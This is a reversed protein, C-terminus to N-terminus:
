SGSKDKSSAYQERMYSRAHKLFFDNIGFYTAYALYRGEESPHAETKYVRTALCGNPAQEFIGKRLFFFSGEKFPTSTNITAGFEGLQALHVPKALHVKLNPEIWGLNSFTYMSHKNKLAEALVVAMSKQDTPKLIFAIVNKSKLWAEDLRDEKEAMLIIKLDEPKEIAGSSKAHELLGTLWAEFNESVFQTDIILASLSDMKKIAPMQEILKNSDITHFELGLGEPESSFHVEFGIWNNEIDKAFLIKKTNGSTLHTAADKFLVENQKLSFISWWESQGAIFLHEMSHGCFKLDDKPEPSIKMLTKKEPDCVIKLGGAPLHSPESPNPAFAGSDEKSLGMEYFLAFSQFHSIAVRDIKRELFDKLNKSHNQDFDVLAVSQLKKDEETLFMDDINLAFKAADEDKLGQYHSNSSLWQRIISVEKKRVGFFFFYVLYEGPHDPHPECRFAKGFFRIMTKTAPPILYFKGRVGEELPTKNRVALACDNLRELTVIKSIEVETNTEQYFLHSPKIIKPLNLFIELKQMLLPKDLPLFILDDIAPHLYSLKDFSDEEFRLAIIRSRNEEPWYGNKRTEKLLHIATDGAKDAMADEAMLIIHLESFLRLDAGEEQAGSEESEKEEGKDKRFYLAEFEAVSNFGAFRLDEGGVELCIRELDGRLKDDRTIGVINPM